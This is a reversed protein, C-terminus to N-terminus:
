LKHANDYDSEVGLDHFTLFDGEPMLRELRELLGPTSQQNTSIFVSMHGTIFNRLAQEGDRKSLTDIIDVDPLAPTTTKEKM